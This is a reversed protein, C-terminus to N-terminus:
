PLPYIYNANDRNDQGVVCGLVSDYGTFEWWLKSFSIFPFMLQQQQKFWQFIAYMLLHWLAHLHDLDVFYCVETWTMQMQSLYNWVELAEIWISLSVSIWLTLQPHQFSDSPLSPLDLVTEQFFFILSLVQFRVEIMRMFTSLNSISNREWPSHSPLTKDGSSLQGPGTLM